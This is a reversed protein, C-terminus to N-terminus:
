CQSRTLDSPRGASLPARLSGTHRVRDFKLAGGEQAKADLYEPAAGFFAIRHTRKRLKERCRAAWRRRRAATPRLRPRRTDVSLRQSM